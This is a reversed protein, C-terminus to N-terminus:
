ILGDKYNRHANLIRRILIENSKLSYFVLYSDIIYVRCDRYINKYKCDIGLYPSITLLLIKKRLYRVYSLARSPSDIAIYDLIDELDLLSEESYKLKM